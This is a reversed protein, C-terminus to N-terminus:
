RSGVVQLTSCNNWSCQRLLQQGVRGVSKLRLGIGGSRRVDNLSNWPADSADEELLAKRLEEAVPGSLSSLDSSIKTGKESLFPYQVDSNDASNDTDSELGCLLVYPLNHAIYDEPYADM